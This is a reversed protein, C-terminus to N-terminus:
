SLKSKPLIIQLVSKLMKLSLHDGKRHREKGELFIRSSDFNLFEHHHHEDCDEEEELSCCNKEMTSVVGFDANAPELHPAFSPFQLREILFWLERLGQMVGERNHYSSSTKELDLNLFSCGWNLSRADWVESSM